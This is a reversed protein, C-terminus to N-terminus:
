VVGEPEVEVGELATFGEGVGTNVGHPEHAHPIKSPSAPVGPAFSYSHPLTKTELWVTLIVIFDDTPDLRGARKSTVFKNVQMWNRVPYYTDRTFVPEKQGEWQNTGLSKGEQLVGIALRTMLDPTCPIAFRDMSPYPTDTGKPIDVHTQLDSPIIAPMDEVSPMSPTRPYEHVVPEVKVPQPTIVFKWIVWAFVVLFISLAIMAGSEINKDRKATDARAQAEAMAVLQAPANETMVASTIMYAQQTAIARNVFEQQTSTAAISSPYASQTANIGALKSSEQAMVEDHIRIEYNATLQLNERVAADSTQVASISTEQAHMATLALDLTATPITTATPTETPQVFASATPSVLPTDLPIEILPQGDYEACAPLALAFTLCLMLKYFKM